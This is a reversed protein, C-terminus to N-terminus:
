KENGSRKGKKYKRKKIKINNKRENRRKWKRWRWKEKIGRKERRGKKMKIDKKKREM